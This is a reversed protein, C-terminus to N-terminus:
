PHPWSLIEDTLKPLTFAGGPNWRSGNCCYHVDWSDEDDLDKGSCEYDPKFCAWFGGQWQIPLHHLNLWFVGEDSDLWSLVDEM